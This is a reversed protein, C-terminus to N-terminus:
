SLPDRRHSWFFVLVVVAFGLSIATFGLFRVIGSGDVLSTLPNIPAVAKPIPRAEAASVDTAGRRVAPETAPSVQTREGAMVDRATTVQWAHGGGEPPIVDRPETGAWDLFLFFGLALVLLAMGAGRRAVM